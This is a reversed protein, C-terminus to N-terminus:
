KVEASLRRVDAEMKKLEEASNSDFYGRVWGRGDVIAFKQSHTISTEEAPFKFGKNALEVISKKPGTLFAWNTQEVKHTKAYDKLVKSTDNKPDTTISVFWINKLDKLHNQATKLKSTMLPCEDGCSTFIFDVIWIKKLMSERSITKGNQDKLQFAPIEYLDPLKVEAAAFALNEQASLVFLFVPLMVKLLGM